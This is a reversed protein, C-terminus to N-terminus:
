AATASQEGDGRSAAPSDRSARPSREVELDEQTSMLRRGFMGLDHEDHSVHHPATSPAMILDRFNQSHWM